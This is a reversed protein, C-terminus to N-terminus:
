LGFIKAMNGEKVKEETMWVKGFLPGCWVFGVAFGILSAVLIAIIEPKISEVEM